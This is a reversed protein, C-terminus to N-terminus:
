VIGDTFDRADQAAEQTAAMLPRRERDTAEVIGSLPYSDLLVPLLDQDPDDLIAAYIELATAVIFALLRDGTSPLDSPRQHYRILHLIDDSFESQRGADVGASIYSSSLHLTEQGVPPPGAFTDGEYWLDAYTEKREDLLLLRGLQSLLVGSYAIEPHPHEVHEALSRAVFAAGIGLQMVYTYIREQRDTDFTHFRETLLKGLLLNCTPRFGIYQIAAEVSDVRARLKFFASNATRILWTALVQDRSLIRILREYDTDEANGRAVLTLLQPITTPLPPLNMEVDPGGANSASTAPDGIATEVAEILHDKTIPKTVIASFGAERFLDQHDQLAYATCAIAPVGEHQPMRRIAHLVEIGTRRENLNIDLIFADYDNEESKFLAEDVSSAVDIVHPDDEFMVNVLRRTVKNDEVILLRYRKAGDGSASADADDAEDDSRARTLDKFQELAQALVPLPGNEVPLDTDRSFPSRPADEDDHVSGLQDAVPLHELGMSWDPFVRQGLHTEALVELSHHRPDKEITEYLRRVVGEDGEMVQLFHGAVYLLVGTIGLQDNRAQSQRVLAEVTADDVSDAAVSRYVLQFIPPTPAGPSGLADDSLQDSLAEV